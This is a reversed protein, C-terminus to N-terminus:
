RWTREAYPLLHQRMNAHPVARLRELAQAVEVFCAELVLGDPDECCLEGTWSDVEYIAGTAVEVVPRPRGTVEIGTEERLERAVAAIPTEGPEVTGGPLFWWAEPDDPGQQRVMLVRDGDRVIATVWSM